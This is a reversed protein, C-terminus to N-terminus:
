ERRNPSKQMVQRLADRAAKADRMLVKEDAADGPQHGQKVLRQV